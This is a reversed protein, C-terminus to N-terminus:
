NWISTMEHCCDVLYKRKLISFGSDKGAVRHWTRDKRFMIIYSIRLLYL